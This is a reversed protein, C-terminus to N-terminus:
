ERILESVYSKTYPYIDDGIVCKIPIYTLSYCSCLAETCEIYGCTYSASVLVWLVDSSLTIFLISNRLRFGKSREVM